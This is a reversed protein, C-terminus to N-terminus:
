RIATQIVDIIRAVQDESLEPYMPLSFCQESINETVPLPPIRSHNTFAKQQHLGSPYYIASAINNNNLAAQIKDRRSDLVTYQHFVHLCNNLERPTQIDSTSLANNYRTAIDRRRSNYEDIHRLKIRLIAAQIEDLRSNYGIISHEYRQPSGHNRLLKVKDALNDSATSVLGGDGYAGLNKSPFFSFCAIDGLTGTKEGNLSAGFSQACDEVIYIDKNQTIAKIDPMNAPHGFLHVAIVARTKETVADQVRQPDLNFTIPDIDVFVPVADVYRIAEATAAFTFSPTIIEDGPAIDLARLALHLADTGSACSIAHKIPFYDGIEKELAQVNPGLIFATNELVENIAAQIETKLVHYQTRLDVMPIFADSSMTTM